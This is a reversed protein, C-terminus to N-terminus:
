FEVNIASTLNVQGSVIDEDFVVSTKRVIFLPARGTIDARHLCTRLGCKEQCLKATVTIRGVSTTEPPASAPVGGGECTVATLDGRILRLQIDAAASKIASRAEAALRIGFISRNILQAVFLGTVVIGLAIAGFIIITPLVVVGKRRMTLSLM